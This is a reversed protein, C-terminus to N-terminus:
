RGNQSRNSQRIRVLSGNFGPVSGRILMLNEDEIIKVVSLDLVTVQERGMRKAMRQGKFVRSPYSSSGISGPARMRDSQGHTKGGGRFNHRKM